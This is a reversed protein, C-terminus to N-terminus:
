TPQEKEVRRYRMTNRVTEKHGPTCSDNISNKCYSFSMISFIISIFACYIKNQMQEVVYQVVDRISQILINKIHFSGSIRLTFLM